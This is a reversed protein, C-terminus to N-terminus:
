FMEPTNCMKSKERFLYDQLNDKNKIYLDNARLIM